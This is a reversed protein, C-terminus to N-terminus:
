TFAALYWQEHLRNRVAVTPCSLLVVGERRDFLPERFKHLMDLSSLTELIKQKAISKSLIDALTKTRATLPYKEVELWFMMRCM